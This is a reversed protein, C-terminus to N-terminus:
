RAMPTTRSKKFWKNADFMVIYGTLLTAAGLLSVATGGNEFGILPGVGTLIAGLFGLQVGTVRQSRYQDLCLALNTTPNLSGSVEKVNGDFNISHIKKGSISVTQNRSLYYQRQQDSLARQLAVNPIIFTYTANVTEPVKAGLVNLSDVTGDMFYVVVPTTRLSDSQGSCTLALLSCLLAGGFKM